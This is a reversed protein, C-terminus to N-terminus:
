SFEIVRHPFPHGYGPGFRSLIYEEAEPDWPPREDHYKGVNLRPIELPEVGLRKFTKAMDKELYDLRWIDTAFPLVHQWLVRQHPEGFWRKDQLIRRVDDMGIGELLAPDGHKLIMCRFWSLPPRVCTAVTWTAENFGVGLLKKRLLPSRPTDHHHTLRKGRRSLIAHSVSVSATAPMALYAFNLDPLVYM